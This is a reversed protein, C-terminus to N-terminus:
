TTYMPKNDNLRMWGKIIRYLIWIADAILVFGGIAVIFTVAGVIGWLLGFWFTRIQWRFHSELFTGLIDDRKVYNMIIAAIATIGLFFSLAYLIYIINTIKKGSIESEVTVLNKM